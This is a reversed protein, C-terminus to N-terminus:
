KHTFLESQIITEVITRVGYGSPKAADLIREVEARDSFRVPAGTSYVILQEALNRAIQREEALLLKKFERIDEFPRGDLEGSADVPQSVRFTFVHGNKGIGEVAAGEETSRYQSRFGGLIDFSELAFGPPDIKRHCVACSEISRHKDLQERITTAGRTDPEVAPTSPPPPPSPQGLIRELIWAGRLVPSTTTGNATLKLISAQTLLGGRPSDAPLKVPRMAVGEVEPLGYHRALHANLYTFDSDIIRAAPLDDRLLREMYLQTEKLASETLLDDLYYDPYFTQDPTTDGVKRLDLWYDLFAHLFDTSREDALLRKAEQQLSDPAQLKGAAAADRLREDPPSNWLFYSLRSALAHDDLEGPEEELYLFGPSCLVATYGALMAEAFGAKELRAEIIGLYRKVEAEAVPRRYARAMFARLLREADENSRPQINLSGDDARQFWLDGFLRRYSEKAEDRSIPGDVEMWRYAVGPIGDETAHPSGIFGPRSRFLRAADPKIREGPLLEVEIEHVGPEPTVDFSGLLRQGGDSLAYITLPEVTRGKETRERDPHWWEGRSKDTSKGPPAWYTHVWLSFANFRLRYRGGAPAQFNEFHYQNGTYTGNTVAFGELERTAPDSAGVTMLATEALVDPQAEFDLIPITAREPHNNFPSFRMRNIFRKDERVYYRETREPEHAAALALRMAEDAASMYRAMQVHSVDLAQGSKNFRRVIGDEPLSDRLDLWPAALLDRVTNEYEYRNLRRLVSRGRVTAESREYAIISDALGQLFASKKGAELSGAAPPPMEGDRVRDHIRVWVERTHQDNLDFSATTLRLGAQPSEAGHCAICNQNLFARTEAPLASPAPAAACLTAGLAATAALKLWSSM